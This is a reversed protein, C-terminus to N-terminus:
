GTYENKREKAINASGNKYFPKDTIKASISVAGESLLIQIGPAIGCSVYGMGIGCGLSPSFSGSTVTGADEANYFIQYNHRPSRRSNAIFYIM